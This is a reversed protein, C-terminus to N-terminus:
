SYQKKWFIFFCMSLDWIYYEASFFYLKQQGAAFGIVVALQVVDPEAVPEVLGSFLDAEVQGYEEGVQRFM